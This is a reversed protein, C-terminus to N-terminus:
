PAPEGVPKSKPTFLARVRRKQSQPNAAGMIRSIGTIFNVEAYEGNLQDDGRTIKVDGTVHAIGSNPNYDGRQGRVMDLANIIIVDGVAEIRDLESSRGGESKRYHAMLVDARVRQQGRVAQADGRAVALQRDIYYELSDRATIHDESADLRVEDGTIVLVGGAVDYVANDGRAVENTSSIRVNGEADIRFVQTGGIEEERYHATLQDAEVVVDGQVARANGRAIYIQEVRRWEIGEDAEVQLRGGGAGGIGLAQASSPQPALALAAAALLAIRPLACAATRTNQAQPSRSM